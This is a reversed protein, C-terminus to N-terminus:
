GGDFRQGQFFVRYFFDDAAQGGYRIGARVEEESPGGGAYSYVGQTDEASKTTLSVVGNVANAGWLTAGPGRVVEIRDLDELVVDQVQWFVGSFLPDYVTRGDIRVLLQNSFRDTFGRSGIAWKSPTLQGVTFGPVLRLSEPISRHGTRRIDEGTIVYIAAPTDILPQARGAVSTM